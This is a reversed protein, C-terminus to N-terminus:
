SRTRSASRKREAKKVKIGQKTFWERLAQRIIAAESLEPSADKAVRLADALEPDIMFTYYRKPTV